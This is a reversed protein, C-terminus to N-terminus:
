LNCPLSSGDVIQLALPATRRLVDIAQPRFFADIPLVQFGVVIQDFFVHDDHQDCPSKHRPQLITLDCDITFIAYTADPLIITVHMFRPMTSRIYRTEQFSPEPKLCATPFVAACCIYNNPQMRSLTARLM